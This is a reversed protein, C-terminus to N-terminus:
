LLRRLVAGLLPVFRVKVQDAVEKVEDHSPATPSLGAAANTICSIGLVRAGMHRAALVELVTSMGVADAGLTRLMRVEAPTEYAPGLLGAYVGQGLDFGLARGAEEAIERLEPDFADNMPPFRPGLAGPNPGLLSSTGTLNLQDSLVMLDGPAFAPNVGGAANTVIVTQAGLHLMLRLGFVVEHPEHGEYLHVRGQMAVVSVGEATGLVLQGAHGSVGSEPMGRIQAYPIAVREELTDAYAGLGSGLVLAVEPIRATHERVDAAAADLRALLDSADSM